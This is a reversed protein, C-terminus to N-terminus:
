SSQLYRQSESVATDLAQKGSAQGLIVASMANGLNSSIKDWHAVLMFAPTNVAQPLGQYFAQYIPDKLLDVGNRDAAVSPMVPLDALRVDAAAPSVYFKAFQWAAALNKTGKSISIGSQDIINRVPKGPFAPLTVTGFDIKSSQYQSLPWIGDLELGIKGSAFLDSPALQNNGGALTCTKSKVLGGMMDLVQANQPSNMYGQISKGNASVETGGNSWFLAEWDYPDPQSPLVCGFQKKGPDTVKKADAVFDNWTWGTKPFALHAARFLSKNYYIVQTTYGIPLAVLKGQYRDYNLITPYFQKVLSQAAADKAILGDLPQLSPAYAPYNWMYEVDPPDDAGFAAAMKEDFGSGYAEVQVQIGPHSKEFLAAAQKEYQLATGTDWVAFRLTISSAARHAFTSRAPTVCGLVVASAAATTLARRWGFSGM